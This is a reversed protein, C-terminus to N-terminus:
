ILNRPKINSSERVVHVQGNQLPSSTEAAVTLEVERVTRWESNDAPLDILDCPPCPDLQYRVNFVTVGKAMPEPDGGDISVTLIPTSGSSDIAYTREEVAYVGSGALYDADLSGEITIANDSVSSIKFTAGQGGMRTLYINLGAEFGSADQVEIVSSGSMAASTSVTRVCVISDQNTMGIRLTLTDRDGNDTGELAVFKGLTPLCAGAQRLEQTVFTLVAGVAQQAEAVQEMDKRQHVTHSFDKAVMSLAIGSLMMAVLLEVLTYGKSSNTM